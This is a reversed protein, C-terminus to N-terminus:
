GPYALLEQNISPYPFTRSDNLSDTVLRSKKNTRTANETKNYRLHTRWKHILYTLLYALLEKLEQCDFSLLFCM